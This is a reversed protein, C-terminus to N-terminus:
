MTMVVGDVRQLMSEAELAQEASTLTPTMTVAVHRGNPTTRTTFPVDDPTVGITAAIAKVCRKVFDDQNTGIAKLMYACPFSHTSELLEILSQRDLTSIENLSGHASHWSENDCRRRCGAVRTRRPAM